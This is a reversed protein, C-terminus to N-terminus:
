VQGSPWLQLLWGAFWQGVYFPWVLILHIADWWGMNGAVVENGIRWGLGAMFMLMPIENANPTVRVRRVTEGQKM